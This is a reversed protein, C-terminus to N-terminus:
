ESAHVQVAPLTTNTRSNVEGIRQPPWIIHTVCGCLLGLPILGSSRSDLSCASNDGIVFCHGHPVTVTDHSPLNISDGPLGAIRRVNKEKYKSPSRFVVVDRVKYDEFNQKQVLVYDDLAFGTSSNSHPNLTPSMSSGRVAMFSAINDSIALGIIGATFCKKALDLLFNQTSM